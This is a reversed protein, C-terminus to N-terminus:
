QYRYGAQFLVQHYLDSAEAGTRVDGCLPDDCITGEYSTAHYSFDYGALVFLGEWLDYSVDVRAGFGIGSATLGWDAIMEGDGFTLTPIVSAEVSGRLAKLGLPSSFFVGILLGQYGHGEYAPNTDVDFALSEYELRAGVAMGDPDRHSTADPQEPHDITEQLLARWLLGFGYQLHTTPCEIETRTAHGCTSSEPLAGHDVRYPIPSKLTGYGFRASVGLGNVWDNDSVLSLPFAVLDARIVSYTGSDSELGNGQAVEVRLSRSALNAGVGIEFIPLAGGSGASTEVAEVLVPASAVLAVDYQASKAFSVAVEGPEHGDLSLTWRSAKAEDPDVDLSLPTVGLTKTGDKVTAGPPTSNVTLSIKVPRDRFAKLAHGTKQIIPEASALLEAGVADTIRRRSGLDTAYLDVLMGTAGDYVEITMTYTGGAKTLAGTILVDVGEETMVAKLAEANQWLPEDEYGMAKAKALLDADEFVVHSQSASFAEIFAKRVDKAKRGTPSIVVIMRGATILEQEEATPEGAFALSPVTLTAGVALAAALFIKIFRSM